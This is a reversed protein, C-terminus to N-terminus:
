AGCLLTFGVHTLGREVHGGRDGVRVACRMDPMGILVDGGVRDGSEFSEVSEVDPEQGAGVFVAQLHRLGGGGLADRGSVVGPAVGILKLSQLLHEIDREVAENAGGVGVVIRRRRCQPLPHGLGAVNVEVAVGTPIRHTVFSEEGLGLSVNNGVAGPDGGLGACRDGPGLLLGVEEPQRGIGVPQKRVVVFM